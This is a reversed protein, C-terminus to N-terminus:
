QFMCIRNRGPHSYMHLYTYIYICKQPEWFPYPDHFRTQPSMPLISRWLIIYIYTRPYIPTYYTPNTGPILLQNAAPNVTVVNNRPSLGATPKKEGPNKTLTPLEGSFQLCELLFFPHWRCLQSQVPLCTFKAVLSASKHMNLWCFLLIEGALHQISSAVGISKDHPQSM